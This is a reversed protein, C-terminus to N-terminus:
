EKNLYIVVVSVNIVKAIIKNESYISYERDISNEFELTDEMIKDIVKGNLTNGLSYKNQYDGDVLVEKCERM